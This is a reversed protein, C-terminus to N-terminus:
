EEDEADAEVSTAWEIIESETATAVWEMHEVWNPWDYFITAQHIALAESNEVRERAIEETQMTTAM